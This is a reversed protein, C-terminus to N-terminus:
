CYLIGGLMLYLNPYPSIPSLNTIQRGEQQACGRMFNRADEVTPFTVVFIARLFILKQCHEKEM